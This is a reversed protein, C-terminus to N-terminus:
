HFGDVITAAVESWALRTAPRVRALDIRDGDAVAPDNPVIVVSRCRQALYQRIAEKQVRTTVGDKDSLVVVAEQALRQYGHQALWDVTRAARKAGSVAYSAAIVVSDCRDLIGSMANHTVGTGCDVLIISFFRRLLDHVAAFDGATLSDSVAPDQEGALVHLRDIQIIYESLNAWDRVGKVERVLDSITRPNVRLLEDEGLLREALDGSDPNADVAVPPAGRLAALTLGVGVTTSTKGIGGKFSLFATTRPQQIIRSIRANREVEAKELASQGLNVSGGSLRYLAGRLGERPVARPPRVLLPEDVALTSPAGPDQGVAPSGVGAALGVEPQAPPASRAGKPNAYAARTAEASEVPPAAELANAQQDVTFWSGAGGQTEDMGWVLVPHGLTRAFTALHEFVSVYVNPDVMEVAVGNVTAGGERRIVAVYEATYM